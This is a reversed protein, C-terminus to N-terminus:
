MWGTYLLGTPKLRFVQSALQSSRWKWDMGCPFSLEPIKVICMHVM